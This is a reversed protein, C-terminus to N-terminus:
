NRENTLEFIGHEKSLRDDCLQAFNSHHFRLLNHGCNPCYEIRYWTALLVPVVSGGAEGSTVEDSVSITRVGLWFTPREVLLRPAPPEAFVFCGREFRDAFRSKLWECCWKVDKSRFWGFM